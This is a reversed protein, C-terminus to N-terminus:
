KNQLNYEFIKADVLYRYWYAQMFCFIKGERGDLFGMQIYYRFFFYLRARFFPPLKYYISRKRKQKVNGGTMNMQSNYMSLELNSYWIHKSLWADIGKYDYHILDGELKEVKGDVIIHEDMLKEEVKGRGFRFLRLFYPKHTGGHKIWKNMFYVRWRMEFGVVETNKVKINIEQALEKSIREDADLRFVWTTNIDCNDLAWNFQKAHGLWEHFFVEAGNKEALFTTNDESGSDIVIIRNSIQKASSIAAEINKEENKTLIIVTIDPTM